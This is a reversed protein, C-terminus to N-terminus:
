PIVIAVHNPIHHGQRAEWIRRETTAHMTRLNRESASNLVTEYDELVGKLAEIGAGSLRMPQGTEVYRKAADALASSATDILKGDDTAWGLFVATEMLNVADVVVCWDDRTPFEGQMLATLGQHMRLLQHSRYAEPMPETTSSFLICLNSYTPVFVTRRHPKRKKMADERGARVKAGGGLAAGM